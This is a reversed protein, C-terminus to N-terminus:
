PKATQQAREAMIKNAASRDADSINSPGFPLKKRQEEPLTLFYVTEPNAAVSFAYASPKTPTTSM